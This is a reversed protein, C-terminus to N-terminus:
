RTNLISKWVQAAQPPATRMMALMSSGTTISFIRARRSAFAAAACAERGGGHRAGGARGNLQSAGRLGVQEVRNEMAPFLMLSRGCAFHGDHMASRTPKM